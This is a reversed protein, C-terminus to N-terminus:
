RTFVAVPDEKPNLLDYGVTRLYDTIEVIDEQTMNPTGDVMFLVNSTADTIKTRDADKSYRSFVGEGDSYVIEGVPVHEANDQLLPIYSENPGALRLIVRDVIADLDFAGVPTRFKVAAMNALDVVNNIKPINSNRLIARIMTLQAPEVGSGALGFNSYLELWSKIRDDEDPIVASFLQRTDSELARALKKQRPPTSRAEIQNFVIYGLKIDGYTTTVDESIAIDM